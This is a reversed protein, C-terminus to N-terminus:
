HGAHGGFHRELYAVGFRVIDQADFLYCHARGVRGETHRELGVYARAITEVADWGGHESAAAFQDTIGNSDWDEVAVWVKAGDADRVPMEYTVRRKQPIEAIAESYHLVTIADLPAGLLLVKGRQAIFREIPSDPGYASGLPHESVLAEAIPGIAAMSSDPHASRRVQPHRCIVSNLYGWGRYPPATAPNFAPWAQREDQSLRVGNLTADYPSHDWSVMAMLTGTPGVAALLATLVAEAGGAVPGVARLSAHVMVLDGPEIGLAQLAETLAGASVGETALPLQDPTQDQQDM